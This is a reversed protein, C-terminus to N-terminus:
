SGASTQPQPVHARTVAFRGLTTAFDAISRAHFLEILQKPSLELDLAAQLDGLAVILGLSDVLDLVASDRTVPMSKDPSAARLADIVAQELGAPPSRATDCDPAAQSM